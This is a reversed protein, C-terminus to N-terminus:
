LKIVNQTVLTNNGTGTVRVSYLQSPWAKSNVQLESTGTPAFRSEKYIIRGNMDTVLIQVQEAKSLTLRVKLVDHIPNPYLAVTYSSPKLTITIVKSYTFTGNLDVMKLRYYLTSSSQLAAGYDTYDYKLAGMSNGAATVTGINSFNNGDISREVVFHSTNTENTTEWQLFAANNQLAGKFNLLQLPLAVYGNSGFYFTSFSNITAQLVYGNSHPDTYSPLVKAAVSQIRPGCTDNNKFIALNSIASVGSAVGKSNKANSLADFEAKTFYLRVDVPMTPQVQPTITINRDLYLSNSKDERVAASNIYFSSTITGLNNGNAKIEALIDGDPGTIPVWLYNNTGDITVTTGATVANPTGATVSISTSITSKGGKDAYGLFTYKILCDPCAPTVPPNGDTAASAANRDMIIFIDRGNPGFAIDRYRNKSQLYTVTDSTNGISLGS